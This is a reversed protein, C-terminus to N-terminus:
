NEIRDTCDLKEADVVSEVFTPLRRSDLVEERAVKVELNVGEQSNLGKLLPGLSGCVVVTETDALWDLWVVTDRARGIRGGEDLLTTVSCPEGNDREGKGTVILPLVVAEV